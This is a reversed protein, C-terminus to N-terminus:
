KSIRLWNSVGFIRCNITLEIHSLKEITFIQYKDGQYFVKIQFSQNDNTIEFTAKEESILNSNSDREIMNLIGKDNELYYHNIYTVDGKEDQSEWFGILKDTIESKTKCCDLKQGLSFLPSLTLLLILIRKM